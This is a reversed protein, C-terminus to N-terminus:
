ASSRRLRRRAGEALWQVMLLASALAHRTAGTAGTADLAGLGLRLGLRALVPRRAISGRGRSAGTAVLARFRARGTLDVRSWRRLPPELIGMALAGSAELYREPTREVFQAIADFLEGITPDRRSLAEGLHAGLDSWLLREVYRGLVVDRAAEDLRAEAEATVSALAESAVAAAEVGRRASSRSIATISTGGARRPPRYWEYVTEGLVDVADGARLLSRIIWPQDGLVRGSFRLGEWASRHFLKAHPSVFYLLGPNAALSKRGPHRIDPVDYFATRWHRRGDWWVQQGVVATADGGLAHRALLELGGPMFRDDADLLTLWTGRVRELGVNRANSVGGNADLRISVIRGDRAAAAAVLEATRDTSGDDVVICELPVDRVELVSALAQEIREEANWCPLLVSLEPDSM